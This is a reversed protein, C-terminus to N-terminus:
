YQQDKLLRVALAPVRASLCMQSPDSATARVARAVAQDLLVAFSAYTSSDNTLLSAGLTVTNQIKINEQVHM